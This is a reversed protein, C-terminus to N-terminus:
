KLCNVSFLLNRCHKYKPVLPLHRSTSAARSFEKKALTCAPWQLHCLHRLKTCPSVAAKGRPVRSTPAPSGLSSVHPIPHAGPQPVKARATPYSVHCQWVNNRGGPSAKPATWQWFSFLLINQVAVQTKLSSPTWSHTWSPQNGGHGASVDGTLADHFADQGLVWNGDMSFCIFTNCLHTLAHLLVEGGLTVMEKVPLYRPYM